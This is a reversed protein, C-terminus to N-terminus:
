KPIGPVSLFTAAEVITRGNNNDIVRVGMVRRQDRAFLARKRTAIEEVLVLADEEELEAALQKLGHQYALEDSAEVTLNWVEAGLHLWDELDDLEHSAPPWHIYPAMLEVLTDSMLTSFGQELLVPDPERGDPSLVMRVAYKREAERGADSRARKVGRERRRRRKKELRLQRTRANSM